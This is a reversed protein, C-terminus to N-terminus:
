GGEVELATTVDKTTKLDVSIEKYTSKAEMARIADDIKGLSVECRATITIADQIVDHM